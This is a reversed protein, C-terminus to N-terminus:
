RDVKALEEGIGFYGVREMQDILDLCRTKIADDTTQEYQRVILTSVDHATMAGRNAINTGEEGLFDLIRDAARCIILPLEVNSEKLAHLLGDTETEFCRSEIFRVIFGKLQLLREGSLSFFASSVEQRVAESEDAFFEELREACKDGVVDHSLNTAYVDAAAKRMTESGSRIDSADIALSDDGLEALAIQRAANAAAEPRDSKLAFQLLERLKGYHTDIAYHIFRDFPHTACIADCGACAKLFLEVAFDRDFKLLPMFAQIACTRVSIVPDESLAMLAPRLTHSRTEDDHLLSSLAEAAQGRVCNIGHEHPDGGYYNQGNAKDQWIDSNPDPDNTAYYVAIDLVRQPLPRESLRRICSVIASGCPRNPLAHLRDIVILFLELPVVNIQKEDSEKEDKSLNVYRSCLGDLIASFYMPDVDDPMKPVLAAFRNRERRAFEALSRSLEVPGGRFRDTSGNYKKIASIWQDDSMKEAIAQQIPSGVVKVLSTEDEKVIADPLTPFKRELEEIRLAARYSIRSRDLSRLVLLESSGRWRPTQKEYEDCYGIIRSELEELLKASCHPSIAKLAIRSIASEGSGEGSGSWSGYGINLRRQDACHQTPTSRCHPVRRM